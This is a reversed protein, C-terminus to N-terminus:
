KRPSDLTPSLQFQSLALVRPSWDKSADGAPQVCVAAPQALVSGGVLILVPCKFCLVIPHFRLQVSTVSRLRCSSSLSSRYLLHRKASVSHFPTSSLVYKQASPCDEEGSYEEQLEKSEEDEDEHLFSESDPHFIAHYWEALRPRFSV